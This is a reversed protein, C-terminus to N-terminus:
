DRPPRFPRSPESSGHIVAGVVERMARRIRGSTAQKSVGLREGLESLTAERPVEFFGMEYATTLTRWQVASLREEVPPVDPDFVGNLELEVGREECRDGFRRLRNRDPFRLRFGWTGDVGSGDLVSGDAALLAAGFGDVESTWGARYLDRGDVDALREVSAVSPRSELAEEVCARSGESVRFYPHVHDELLVLREIEVSVGSSGELLGGLPFANGAITVDAITAM